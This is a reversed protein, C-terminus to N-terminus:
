DLYKLDDQDFLDEALVYVPNLMKDIATKTSSKKNEEVYSKFEDLNM